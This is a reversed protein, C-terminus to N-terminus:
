SIRCLAEFQIKSTKTCRGFCVCPSLSFSVFFIIWELAFTVLGVILSVGIPFLRLCFFFFFSCISVFVIVFVLVARVIFCNYEYTHAKSCRDRGAKAPHRKKQENTYMIQHTYKKKTRKNRMFPIHHSPSSISIGFSTNHQRSFLSLWVRGLHQMSYILCHSQQKKGIKM